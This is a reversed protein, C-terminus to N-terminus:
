RPPRPPSAPRQRALGLSQAYALLRLLPAANTPVAPPALPAIPM